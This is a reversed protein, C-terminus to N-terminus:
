INVDIDEFDIELGAVPAFFGGSEFEDATPATRRITWCDPELATVNM